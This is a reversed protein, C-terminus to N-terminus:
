TTPKVSRGSQALSIIEQLIRDEPIYRRTTRQFDTSIESPCTAEMKLTSSYAFRSVLTFAPPLCLLRSTSIESLCPLCSTLERQNARHSLNFPWHGNARRCFQVFWYSVLVPYDAPGQTLDITNARRDELCKSKILSSWEERSNGGKEEDNWNWSKYIM